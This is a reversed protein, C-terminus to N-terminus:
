FASSKHFEENFKFTSVKRFTVFMSEEMYGLVFQLTVCAVCSLCHSWEEGKQFDSLMRRCESNEDSSPRNCQIGGEGLLLYFRPSNSVSMM